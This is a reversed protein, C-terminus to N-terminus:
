WEGKVGLSPIIPLGSFWASRTYDYNYTVDEPSRYNYVNQVDLYLDLMWSDFTFKKDIRVDLQHFAPLRACNACSSAVANWTDNQENWVATGVPTYPNGSVLRFRGGVEWGNGIKYNAVTTLIHTQDWDFLRDPQGPGDSRTAHQLTYALWGFWRGSMKHRLMLELGIVQGTGGNIYPVQPFLGPALVTLNWLRKHFFQLDITDNATPTWEAGVAIEWGRHSTLFPNGFHNVIQFVQPRQSSLGTAAKLLWHDNLKRRVNFRPLLTVDAGNGVYGDLRVGPVVEWQADPKWVMDFWAAPSFMPLSDKVHIYAANTASSDTGPGEESARGQPAYANFWLQQHEIDAGTRLQVPGKGFVFDQRLSLQMAQLNFRVLSAIATDSEAWIGGLTTKSTWSGADHRLIGIAGAFRTVSSIRGATNPDIGDIPDRSILALADDSGLGLVTLSTHKSFRHDFKAQYDYYRPALTFPINASPAFTNLVFPLLVDIHSRRAALSLTTNPGLPMDLFAGLHFANLEVYGHWRPEDTPLKLRANLVGGLQRGWSVPYGGPLFDVAELIDTNVVSYLGGFHYIIPVRVGEIALLTESPASGRVVIEGSLPSPRSVGPLNQVVKLADGYVGPVKQIEEASLTRRTMEGPEPPAEATARYVDSVRQVRLMVDATADTKVEVKRTLAEHEGAPLQLTWQGATLAGSRFRGAGDSVIQVDRTGAPGSALVLAGAIPRGTGREVIQGTLSSFGSPTTEVDRRDYKGLSPAFPRHETEPDFAYRFRIRVPVPKDGQRAPQFTLKRAAALVEHDFAPGASEVVTLGAVQGTADIQLELVVVTLAHPVGNPWAAPEYHRLEPPQVDSEQARLPLALLALLGSLIWQQWRRKM